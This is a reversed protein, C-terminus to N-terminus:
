ILCALRLMAPVVSIQPGIPLDSIVFLHPNIVTRAIGYLFFFPHCLTHSLHLFVLIHLQELILNIVNFVLRYVLYLKVVRFDLLMVFQVQGLPQLLLRSLKWVLERLSLVNAQVQVQLSRM